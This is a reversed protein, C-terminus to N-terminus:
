PTPAPVPQLRGSRANYARWRRLGQRVTWGVFAILPIWPLMTALFSVLSAASRIVTQGANTIALTVPAFNLGAVEAEKGQYSIDVLVTETLTRLHKQQAITTEIDGQVQALEKEVAALDAANTTGPDTLMGKLRDRLAIKPELRKEVELVPLTQDEAKETRSSVTAPAASVIGAFSQFSKPSLRISSNAISTEQWRFISTSVVKCGLKGCEALHKKQIAEIQDAPVELAFSYSVAIHERTQAAAPAPPKFDPPPPPPPMDDLIDTEMPGSLMETRTDSPQDCAALISMLLIVPMLRPLYTANIM